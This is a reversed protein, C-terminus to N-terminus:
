PISRGQPESEPRPDRLYTAVEVLWTGLELCRRSNWKPIEELAHWVLLPQAARTALRLEAVLEAGVRFQPNFVQRM